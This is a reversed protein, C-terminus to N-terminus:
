KWKTIGIKGVSKGGGGGTVTYIYVGSAINENAINWPQPDQTVTIEKVLEGAINYIKITAGSSVGKFHIDGNFRSDGAKYPNPYVKVNNNDSAFPPPPTPTGALTFTSFHLVYAYAYNETDNVHTELATWTGAELCYIVLNEESINTGDVWGDGPKPEDFYSFKVCVTGIQGAVTGVPKEQEDKLEINYVV